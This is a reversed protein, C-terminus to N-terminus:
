GNPRGVEEGPPPAAAHREHLAKYWDDFAKRDSARRGVKPRLYPVAQLLPSDLLEKDDTM